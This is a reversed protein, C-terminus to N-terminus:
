NYKFYSNLNVVDFNVGHMDCLQIATHVNIDLWSYNSKLDTTIKETLTPYLVSYEQLSIYASETLQEFLTKM